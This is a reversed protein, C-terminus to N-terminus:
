PTYKWYQATSLTSYTYYQVMISARSYEGSYQARWDKIYRNQGIRTGESTGHSTGEVTSVYRRMSEVVTMAVCGGSWVWVERETM